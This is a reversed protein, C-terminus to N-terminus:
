SNNGSKRKFPIDSWTYLFNFIFVFIGVGISKYWDVSQHFVFQWIISVTVFILPYIISMKFIDKFKM